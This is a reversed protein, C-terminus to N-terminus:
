NGTSITENRKKLIERELIERGGQSYDGLGRLGVRGEGREIPIGKSHIFFVSLILSIINIAMSLTAQSFHFCLLRFGGSLLSLVTCHKDMFRRAHILINNHIVIEMFLGYLPHPLSPSLPISSVYVCVGSV